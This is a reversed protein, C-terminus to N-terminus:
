WRRPQTRARVFATPALTAFESRAEVTEIHAQANTLDSTAGAEAAALPADEQEIRRLAEIASDQAGEARAMATDAAEVAKTLCAINPLDRGEADEEEAIGAVFLKLADAGSVLGVSEDAPTTAEIRAEIARLESTADRADENRARAAALDAVGLENFAARQKALASALAEEASATGTPPTVVLEADGFRIRTEQTLIREGTALPKGDISIGTADGLLTIRTAGASLIARAEAVARENAELGAIVRVPILTAALAKAEGHQRELRCAGCPTQARCLRLREGRVEFGSKAPPWRLGRMRVRPVRKSSCMARTSSVSGRKESLVLLSLASNAREIWPASRRTVIRSRRAIANPSTTSVECGHASLRM